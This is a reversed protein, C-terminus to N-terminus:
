GIDKDIIKKRKWKDGLLNEHELQTATSIFPTGTLEHISSVLSSPDSSHFPFYFSESSVPTPTRTKNKMIAKM